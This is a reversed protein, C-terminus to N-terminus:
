ASFTLTTVTWRTGTGPRGHCLWPVLTARYAVYHGTVGTQSFRSVFGNFFRVKGDPQLLRVTVKHGLLDELKLDREKSLLQLDFEFPRGLEETATMSRFLLVGDGLPTSVEIEKKAKMQM